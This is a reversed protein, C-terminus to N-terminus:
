QCETECAGGRAVKQRVMDERDDATGVVVDVTLSSNESGFNEVDQESLVRHVCETLVKEDNQPRSDQQYPDHLQYRRQLSQNTQSSHLGAIIIDVRRIIFPHGPLPKSLEHLLGIASLTRSGDQSLAGSGSRGAQSAFTALTNSFPASVARHLADTALGSSSTSSPVSIYGQLMDQTYPETEPDNEEEIFKKLESNIEAAHRDCSLAACRAKDYEELIRLKFTKVEALTTIQLAEDSTEFAPFSKLATDSHAGDKHIQIYLWIFTSVFM